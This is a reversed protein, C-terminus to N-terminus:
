EVEINVPYGTVDIWPILSPDQASRGNDALYQWYKMMDMKYNANYELLYADQSKEKSLKTYDGSYSWGLEVIGPCSPEVEFLINSTKFIDLFYNMLQMGVEFKRSMLLQIPIILDIKVTGNHSYSQSGGSPKLLYINMAPTTRSQNSDRFYDYINGQFIQNIKADALFFAKMASPLSAELTPGYLGPVVLSTPDVPQYFTPNGNYSM